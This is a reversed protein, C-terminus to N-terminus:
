EEVTLWSGYWVGLGPNYGLCVLIYNSAELDGEWLYTGGSPPASKRVVDLAWAPKESPTGDGGIHDIIDQATQDGTVRALNVQAVADSTENVFTLEVPGATLVTPGKYVCTEGDFTLRLSEDSDTACSAVLVVACVLAIMFLFRRM